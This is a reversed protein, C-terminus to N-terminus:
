KKTIIPFKYSKGKWRLNSLIEVFSVIIKKIAEKRMIKNKKFLVNSVLCDTDALMERLISKREFEVFDITEGQIRMHGKQFDLSCTNLIDRGLIMDYNFNADKLILADVALKKNNPLMLEFKVEGFTNTDGTVGKVKVNSRKIKENRLSDINLYNFITRESGSDLLALWMNDATELVIVPKRSKKLICHKDKRRVSTWKGEITTVVTTAIFTESENEEIIDEELNSIVDYRNKCKVNIEVPPPEIDEHKVHTKRHESLYVSDKCQKGVNNGKILQVNNNGSTTIDTKHM